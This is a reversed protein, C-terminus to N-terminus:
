WDVQTIFDTTWRFKLVLIGDIDLGYYVVDLVSYITLKRLWLFSFIEM